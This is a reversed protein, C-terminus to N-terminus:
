KLLQSSLAIAESVAVDSNMHEWKGWRGAGIIGNELAWNQIYSIDGIKSTTNIPYAFHNRYTPVVFPDSRLSNTETWHGKAGPIFNGRLLLRHYDCALSPEYIWHADSSLPMDRYNVDISNHLLAEIKQEVLPPLNCIKPWITWPITNIIFNCQWRDNVARSAIDISDVPCSLKLCDGLRAGMRRWVEGYGYKKPYFFEGHAPVAGLSHKNLCSELMERFSINPLKHLWGIGLRDLSGSWIKSNYPVMYENAIKEGFKWYIWEIFNNPAPEGLVSGSKVLAELYDIQDEKPLQWINSEIPYDILFSDIAIKSVRSFKQWEHEPMFKFLFNTAQKNKVDLFHGGGIDLPSGDVMRSRCLGGPESEKEVVILQDREVGGDLLINALSLGTPGAGLILFKIKKM